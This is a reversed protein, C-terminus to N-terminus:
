RVATWQLRYFKPIAPNASTDQWTATTSATTSSTLITTANSWNILDSSQQVTYTVYPDLNATNLSVSGGSVSV